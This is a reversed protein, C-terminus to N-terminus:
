NDCFVKMHMNRLEYEWTFIGACLAFLELYEISPQVRDIFGPEWQAYTWNNGLTCGFGLSANASADSTFGLDISSIPDVALDIMPHNVM